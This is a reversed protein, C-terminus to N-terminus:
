KTDRHKLVFAKRESNSCVHKIMSEECAGLKQFNDRAQRLTIGKNAPSSSDLKDVDQGSDEWFCVPCIHWEARGPLSIYDCCPCQHLSQADDHGAWHLDAAIKKLEDAANEKNRKGTM